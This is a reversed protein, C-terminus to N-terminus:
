STLYKERKERVLHTLPIIATYQLASYWDKKKKLEPRRLPERLSIVESNINQLSLQVSAIAAQTQADLNTVLDRLGQL